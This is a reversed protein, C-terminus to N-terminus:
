PQAKALLRTLETLEEAPLAFVPARQPGIHAARRAAEQKDPAEAIIRMSAAVLEPLTADLQVAPIDGRHYRRLVEGLTGIALQAAARLWRPRCDHSASRSPERSRGIVAGGMTPNIM